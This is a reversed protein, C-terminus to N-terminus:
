ESRGHNPNLNEDNPYPQNLRKGVVRVGYLIFLTSIKPPKLVLTRREKRLMWLQLRNESMSLRCRVLVSFNPVNCLEALYTVQDKVLPKYQYYTITAFYGQTFLSGVILLAATM